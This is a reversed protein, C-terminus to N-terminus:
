LISPLIGTARCIEALATNDRALVRKRANNLQNKVTVVSVYLKEAIEPMSLGSYWLSIIEKERPTVIDRAVLERKHSHWHFTKEGSSFRVWFGPDPTMLAKVDAVSGFSLVPFGHEDFSFPHHIYHLRLLQNKLNRTSAGCVCTTLRKREEADYRAAVELMISVFTKVIAPDQLIKLSSMDWKQGEPLGALAFLNWTHFIFEFHERDFISYVRNTRKSLDEILFVERKLSESLGDYGDGPKWESRLRYTFDLLFNNDEFQLAGTTHEAM